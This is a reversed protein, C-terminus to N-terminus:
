GTRQRRAPLVERRRVDANRSSTTESSSARRGSRRVSCGHRSSSRTGDAARVTGRPTIRRPRPTSHCATFSSGRIKATDVTPLASNASVVIACAYTKPAMVERTMTGLMRSPSAAGAASAIAKRATM